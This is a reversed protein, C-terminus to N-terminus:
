EWTTVILQHKDEAIFPFEKKRDYERLGSVTQMIDWKKPDYPSYFQEGGVQLPFDVGEEWLEFWGTGHEVQLDFFIKAETESVSAFLIKEEPFNQIVLYM